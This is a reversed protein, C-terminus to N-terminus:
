DIPEITIRYSKGPELKYEPHPWGPHVRSADTSLIVGTTWVCVRPLNSDTAPISKAVGEFTFMPNTGPHNNTDAPASQMMQNVKHAEFM